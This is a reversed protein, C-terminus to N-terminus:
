ESLDVADCLISGDTNEVLRYEPALHARVEDILDASLRLTGHDVDCGLVHVGPVAAELASAWDGRPHALLVLFVNYLDDM